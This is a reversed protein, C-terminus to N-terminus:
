LYYRYENMKRGEHTMYEHDLVFRNKKYFYNAVENDEADTELKIYQYKGIDVKSKLGNILKSGIGKGELEPLIGISSLEVYKDKRKASESYSFARILRFLIKPKRIFAIGAYWAFSIFHRKLLYKYFSSLDGTYALFGVIRDDEVAILLGSNEDEIFGKYLQTLFGKGLFTLFFGRFSEMHIGVIENVKSKNKLTVIKM